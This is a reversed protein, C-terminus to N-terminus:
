PRAERFRLNRLRIDGEIRTQGTIRRLDLSLRYLADGPPLTWSVSVPSWDEGSIPNSSAPLLPIGGALPSLSWALGSDAATLNRTQCEFTLSWSTGGTLFLTQQLLAASEPQSGSFVFKIGGTPVGRSSEIGAVRPITWDFGGQPIPPHLQPNVLPAAPSRAPYPLLNADSLHNWLRLAPIPQQSSIFANVAAVAAPLTTEPSRGASRASRLFSSAARELTHPPPSQSALFSTFAALGDHDLPLILGLIEDPSAGADACLRFIATRDDHARQLALAAWRLTQPFDARRFYFSALSWRPLWLQNYRAAQLLLREATATQGALEASIAAQTLALPRRPNLSLAQFWAPLPDHGQDQLTQALQIPFRDNSPDLLSAARLAAPPAGPTALAAAQQRRLSIAAPILICISAATALLLRGSRSFLLLPAPRPMLPTRAVALIRDHTPHTVWQIVTDQM